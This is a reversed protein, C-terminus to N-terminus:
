FKVGLGVVPGHSIIDVRFQESEYDVGMARYGLLTTVGNSFEYGVGALLHWTLRSSVGFGGIDGAGQLFWHRDLRVVTRMGFIPDFWDESLSAHRTRDRNFRRLAPRDFSVSSRIDTKFSLYSWRFGGFLDLSVKENEVLRYQLRTTIFAQQQELRLNGEIPGADFDQDGVLKGYIVDVGLSWRRYGVEAYGMYALRLKKLTDAMTTDASSNIGRVGINGGVATVWGDTALLVWWEKSAPPPDLPVEAPVNALATTTLLACAGLALTARSLFSILPSLSNTAM